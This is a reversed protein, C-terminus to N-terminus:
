EYDIAEVDPYTPKQPIEVPKPLLRQDKQIAGLWDQPTKSVNPVVIVFKTTKKTNLETSSLKPSQYPALKAAIDIARNNVDNFERMFRGAEVVHGSQLCKYVLKVLKKGEDGWFLMQGYLFDTAKTRQILEKNVVRPHKYKKYQM